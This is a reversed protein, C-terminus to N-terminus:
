QTTLLVKWQLQKLTELLRTAWQLWEADLPKATKDEDLKRTLRSLIVDSDQNEALVKHVADTNSLDINGALKLRIHQDLDIILQEIHALHKKVRPQMLATVTGTFLHISTKEGCGLCAGDGCVMSAYNRKNLLLTELAGVGEDIDDIRIFSDDTTPLKDWFDWEKRLKDISETTQTEISLADDECVDVCMMCGKCTYPNVTISFLGGSGKAKKEKNTYYPKTSSFKFEGLIEM